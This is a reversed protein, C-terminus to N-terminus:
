WDVGTGAVEIKVVGVIPTVPVGTTCLVGAVGLLVLVGCVVCEAGVAATELVGCVM